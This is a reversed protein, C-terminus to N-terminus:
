KSYILLWSVGEGTPIEFKGSGFPYQNEKIVGTKKADNVVCRIARRYM